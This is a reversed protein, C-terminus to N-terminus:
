SAPPASILERGELMRVLNRGCRGVPILVQRLGLGRLFLLLVILLVLSVICLDFFTPFGEPTLGFLGRITWVAFFYSSLAHPLPGTEMFLPILVAFVGAGLLLLVAAGTILPNRRLEFSIQARGLETHMAIACCPMYFGAVRNTLVIANLEIAPEFSFTDNFSASDFPFMYHSNSRSIFAIEEHPRMYTIRNKEHTILQPTFISKAQSGTQTTESQTIKLRTVTRFQESEGVDEGLNIFYGGDFIPERLRQSDIDLEMYPFGTVKGCQHTDAITKAWQIYGNSVLV